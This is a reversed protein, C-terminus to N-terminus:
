NNNTITVGSYKFQSGREFQCQLKKSISVILNRQFTEKRGMRLYNMKEQNIKLVFKKLKYYLIHYWYDEFWEGECGGRTHYQLSNQLAPRSTKRVDFDESLKEDM